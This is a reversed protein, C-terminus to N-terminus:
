SEPPVLANYIDFFDTTGVNDKANVSVSDWLPANLNSTLTPLFEDYIARFAEEKREKVIAKKNIDTEEQNFTTICKIIHYGYETEVIESVEDKALNFAVNEYEEPMVGQGFSYETQTDENYAIALADFDGGAKIQNLIDACREYADAKLAGTFVTKNNNGDISYTKILIQKVTIIRAEDDSIEPNIDKTLEKYMKDALAYEAYMRRVIEEDVGLAAIETTSLSAMYNNTAQQVIANEAQDLSVEDKEALLNMAKIQAIRAIIIEKFREGLTADEVDVAWIEEGFVGEYQNKATTLYVNIEPLVCSMGEIRFVENEKFNTTLVIETNKEIKGCGPLLYLVALAIFCGATRIIKKHDMRKQNNMVKVDNV